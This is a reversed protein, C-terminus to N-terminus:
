PCCIPLPIRFTAGPLPPVLSRGQLRMELLLSIGTIRGRKLFARKSSASSPMAKAMGPIADAAGAGTPWAGDMMCIPGDPCQLMHRASDPLLPPGCCLPPKPPTDQAPVALQAVHATDAAGVVEIAAEVMKGCCPMRAAPGSRLPPRRRSPGSVGGGM